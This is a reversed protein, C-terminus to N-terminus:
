DYTWTVMVVKDAGSRDGKDSRKAKEGKDKNDKDKNADGM